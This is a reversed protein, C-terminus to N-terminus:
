AIRELETGQVGGRVELRQVRRDRESVVGTRHRSFSSRAEQIPRAGSRETSGSLPANPRPGPPQNKSFRVTRVARDTNVRSPRTVVPLGVASSRCTRA